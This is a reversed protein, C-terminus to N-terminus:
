HFAAITIGIRDYVTLNNIANSPAPPFPTSTFPFIFIYLLSLISFMRKCFPSEGDLCAFLCLCLLVQSFHAPHGSLQAQPLPLSALAPVHIGRVHFPQQCTCARSTGWEWGRLETQSLVLEVM